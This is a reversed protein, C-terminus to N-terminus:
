QSASAPPMPPPVEQRSFEFLEVSSRRGREEVLSGVRFGAGLYRDARRDLDEEAIKSERGAGLLRVAISDGFENPV